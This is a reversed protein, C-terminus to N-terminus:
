ACACTPVHSYMLHSTHTSRTPCMVPVSEGHRVCVGGSTVCDYRSLVALGLMGILAGVSGGNMIAGPLEFSAAGVFAKTTNIFAQFSGSSAASALVGKKKRSAQTASPRPLCFLPPLPLPFLPSPPHSTSDVSSFFFSIISPQRPRELSCDACVIACRVM